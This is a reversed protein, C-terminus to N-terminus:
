IMAIAAAIPAAMQYALRLCGSKSRLLSSWTSRCSALNATCFVTLATLDAASMLWSPLTSISSALVATVTAFVLALVAFAAVVSVLDYTYLSYAGCAVGAATYPWRAKFAFWASM